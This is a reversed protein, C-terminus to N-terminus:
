LLRDKLEEFNIALRGIDGEVKNAGSRINVKEGGETVGTIM